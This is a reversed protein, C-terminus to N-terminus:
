PLDKRYFQLLIDAPLVSQLPLLVLLSVYILTALPDSYSAAIRDKLGATCWTRLASTHILGLGTKGEVLKALNYRNFYSVHPSPFGVQWLRELPGHFGLRDLLSAMRYLAGESDPLNLVLIGGPNLCRACAQVANAPRPLHEFVDNFAIVDFTQSPSLADPFLGSEIVFGKARAANAKEDEPEIGSVCAGRLAAAELFLGGSCGIEILTKGALPMHTELRDLLTEFNQRRLGELGEVGTGAGSAHTSALFECAPCRWLWEKGQEMGTNCVACNM